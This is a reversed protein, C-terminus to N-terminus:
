NSVWRVLRGAGDERRAMAYVVRVRVRRARAVGPLTNAM